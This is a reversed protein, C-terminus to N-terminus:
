VHNIGKLSLLDAFGLPQCRPGTNGAGIDL